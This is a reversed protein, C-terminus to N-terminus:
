TRWACARFTMSAWTAPPAAICIPEKAVGTLAAYAGYSAGYICIRGRDAIGEAILWRTADSLDDQMTLGWQRAGAERFARGYNGSGRYNVQLVAYGAAALLQADPDFAWRDFIGFPGGHPLIVAPLNKEAGRPLTLYGHLALGDRAKLSISRQPSMKEPDILDRRALLFGMKKSDTDLLYFSGPDVDSTALVVKLAGNRSASTISLDHDPLSAQLMALLRADESDNDFYVSRAKDHLFTAGVPHSWGDRLIPVPDVVDDRAVERREGSAIDLAVISDPGTPQTVQLYALANDPSFGLPVEIRRSKAQDNILEWEAKNGSRYYLKSLNDSHSGIAFRVEGANDTVFSAKPVSVRAVATRRGSYVNM